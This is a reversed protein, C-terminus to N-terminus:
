IYIYISNLQRAGTPVRRIRIWAIPTWRAPREREGWRKREMEREIEREIYICIYIYADIDMYIKQAGERQRRWWKKQIYVYIYIYTYISACRYSSSSDSVALAFGVAGTAGSSTASLRSKSSWATAAASRLRDSPHSDNVIIYMYICTRTFMYICRCTYYVHIYLYTHM